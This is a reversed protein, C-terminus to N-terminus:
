RDRDGQRMEKSSSVTKSHNKATQRQQWACVCLRVFVLFFFIAKTWKQQVMLIHVHSCMPRQVIDRQYRFSFLVFFAFLFRFFFFSFVIHACMFLPAAPVEIERKKGDRRGIKMKMKNKKKEKKKKRRCKRSFYFKHISVYVDQLQYFGNQM